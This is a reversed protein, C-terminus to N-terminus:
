GVVAGGSLRKGSPPVDASDFLKAIYPYPEFKSPIEVDGAAPAESAQAFLIEFPVIEAVAQRLMGFQISADHMSVTDEDSRRLVAHEHEIMVGFHPMRCPQRQRDIIVVEHGVAPKEVGSGELRRM